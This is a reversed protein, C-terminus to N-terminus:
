AEPDIGLARLQAALKGAREDAKEAREAEKEAREAERNARQTAQTVLEAEKEALERGTPLLNGATDWWRLWPLTMAQYTGRWIGLEGVGEVPYRGHRNPTARVLSGNIYNYMDIQGPNVEYIGYYAPRIAKEYVWFKGEQETRDREARGDGSVFELVILPAVIEQWLVYSRRPQGKFTPPSGPVYFWDPSVAGREPPDVMRWYIGCDQGIAYQGDPHKAQLVPEIADTLLRSQPHEQFNKVFTGDECPLDNHDPMRLAGAREAASAFRDIGPPLDNHDPLRLKGRPEATSM